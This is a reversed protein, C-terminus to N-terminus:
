MLGGLDRFDHLHDKEGPVARQMAHLQAAMTAGVGRPAEALGSVGGGGERKKNKQKKSKCGM